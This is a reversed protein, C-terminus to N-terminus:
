QDALLKKLELEFRPETLQHGFFQRYNTKKNVMLTVPIAGTWEKSVKPCFVDANTEKLWLVQSKYNNKKIFDQIGKPYDEKFDMSVLIMKVKGNAAAVHKEFYVLEHICPPCWTAWFNLIVPVSSTDVAKMVEDMTVAKIQSNATVSIIIFALLTTIRKM